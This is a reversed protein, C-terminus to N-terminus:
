CTNKSDKGNACGGKNAHIHPIVGIFVGVILCIIRINALIVAGAIARLDRINRFIGRRTICADVILAAIAIIRNGACCTIVRQVAIGAIILHVAVFAIIQHHATIPIIQKVAINAVIGQETLVAIIRQMAATVHINQFAISPIILKKAMTPIIGKEAVFAIVAKDAAGAIIQEKAARAIIGQVAIDTIIRENTAFPRIVEKTAPTIIGDDAHCVIGVGGPNLICVSLIEEVAAATIIENNGPGIVDYGGTFPGIGDGKPIPECLFMLGFYHIERGGFIVQHHHEIIIGIGIGFDRQFLVFIIWGCLMNDQIAFPNGRNEIGFPQGKIVDCQDAFARNIHQQRTLANRWM